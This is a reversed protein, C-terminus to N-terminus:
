ESLLREFFWVSLAFSELSVREDIGHFGIPDYMPSFKIIGNSISEFHRSDTAGIMLFPSAVISDASSRIIRAVHRFAFSTDGTVSSAEIASIPTIRVLPDGIINRIDRLVAAVSDGPLLRLNVVATAVSPVVNEKVGSRIITPVLTTRIMANGGPSREYIKYIMPRFLWLNAFAMRQSFNMEPGTYEIFGRTSPSFRPEFENERLRNIAQSLIDIATSPEPMSSHGGEKQVTLEITLSGKESTGLLAVPRTIGPIKERTIIGGEDIVLDAKVNQSQLLQAIALAGGGTTEENHGFALYITRSPRFGDKLLKEVAEMIAILNIKDDAAGRGWIFGDRVTGQFPEVHWLSLSEDEVPVVDQHAMIVFPRLSNDQGQWRYLLSHGAIVERSLRDHVLPYSRELFARFAVFQSSDFQDPLSITRYSIAQCLHQIAAASVAPAPRVEVPVQKSRFGLTRVSIVGVAVLLIAAVTLLTKRIM